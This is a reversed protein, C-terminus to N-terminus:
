WHETKTNLDSTLLIMINSPRRANRERNEIQVKVLYIECRVGGMNIQTPFPSLNPGHGPREHRLDWPLFSPSIEAVNFGTNFQQYDIRGTLLTLATHTPTPTTTTNYINTTIDTYPLQDPSQSHPYRPTPPPHLGSLWDWSLELSVSWWAGPKVLCTLSIQCCPQCRPLM